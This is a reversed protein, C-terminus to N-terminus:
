QQFAKRNIHAKAYAVAEHVNSRYGIHSGDVSVRWSTRDDTWTLKISSGKYGFTRTNM